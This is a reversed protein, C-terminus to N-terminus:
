ISQLERIVEDDTIDGKYYFVHQIKSLVRCTKDRDHAVRDLVQIIDDYDSPQIRPDVFSLDPFKISMGMIEFIKKLIRYWQKSKEGECVALKRDPTNRIKDRCESLANQALRIGIDSKERSLVTYYGDMVEDLRNIQEECHDFLLNLKRFLGAVKETYARWHETNGIKYCGITYCIVARLLQDLYRQPCSAYVCLHILSDREELERSSNIMYVAPISGLMDAFDTQSDRAVSRILRGLEDWDALRKNPILWDSSQKNGKEAERCERGSGSGQQVNQFVCRGKRIDMGIFDEILMGQLLGAQESDMCICKGFKCAKNGCEESERDFRSNYLAAVLDKIEQRDM